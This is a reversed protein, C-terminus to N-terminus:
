TWNLLKSAYVVQQDSKGIVNQSLMAGIALLSADTHVCFEM